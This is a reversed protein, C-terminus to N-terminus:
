PRVSGRFPARLGIRFPAAAHQKAIMTAVQTTSGAAGTVLNALSQGGPAVEALKSPV